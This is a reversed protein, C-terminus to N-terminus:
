LSAVAFLLALLGGIVLYDRHRLPDTPVGLQAALWRWPKVVLWAIMVTGLAALGVIQLAVMM